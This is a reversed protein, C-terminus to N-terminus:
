STTVSAVCRRGYGSIRISYAAPQRLQFDRFSQTSIGSRDRFSVPEDDTDLAAPNAPTGPAGQSSAPGVDVHLNFSRGFDYQVATGIIPSSFVSM